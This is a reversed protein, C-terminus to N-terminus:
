EFIKNIMNLASVQTDVADQVMKETLEMTKGDSAPLRKHGAIDEILKDNNKVAEEPLMKERNFFAGSMNECQKRSDSKVMKNTKYSALADEWFTRQCKYVSAIADKYALKAEKNPFLAAFNKFANKKADPTFSKPDALFKEVTALFDAKAKLAPDLNEQAKNNQQAAQQAQQQAMFLTNGNYITLFNYSCFTLSVFASILGPVQWKFATKQFVQTWGYWFGASLLFTFVWFTGYAPLLLKLPQWFM